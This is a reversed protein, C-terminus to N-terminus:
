KKAPAECQEAIQWISEVFFTFCRYHKEGVRWFTVVVNGPKKTNLNPITLESVPYTTAAEVHSDAAAALEASTVKLAQWSNPDAASVSFSMSVIAFAAILGRM